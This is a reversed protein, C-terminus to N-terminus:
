FGHGYVDDSQVRGKIPVVYGQVDENLVMEIVQLQESAEFLFPIYGVYNIELLCGKPVELAFMGNWDSVDGKKTDKRIITAGIVEKGDSDVIRGRVVIGQEGEKLLSKVKTTKLASIVTSDKPATVNNQAMAEIPQAALSVGMAMGAVAAAKGLMRRINLQHEIYRVEQECKPCTGLCDGKHNCETPEYPIDNARAVQLRIEKLTKCIKKGQKM